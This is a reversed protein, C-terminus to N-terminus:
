LRSPSPILPAVANWSHIPRRCTSAYLKFKNTIAPAAVSDHVRDLPRCGFCKNGMMDISMTRLIGM